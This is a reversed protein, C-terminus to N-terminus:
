AYPDPLRFRDFGVFSQCCPMDIKVAEISNEALLKQLGEIENEDFKISPMNENVADPNWGEEGASSYSSHFFNGYPWLNM